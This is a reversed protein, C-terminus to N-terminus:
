HGKEQTKWINNISRKYQQTKWNKIKIKTKGQKVIGSEYKNVSFTKFLCHRFINENEHMFIKSIPVYLM